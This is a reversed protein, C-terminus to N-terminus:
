KVKKKSIEPNNIYSLLMGVSDCVHESEENLQPYKKRVVAKVDDKTANLNNVGWKKWSKPPIYRVETDYKGGIIGCIAVTQLLSMDFKNGFQYETLFLGVNYKEFIADITQFIKWWRLERSEKSSMDVTKFDVLEWSGSTFVSYGWHVLSPDVCIVHKTNNKITTESGNM